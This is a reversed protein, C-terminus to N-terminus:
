LCWLAEFIVTELTMTGSQDLFTLKGKNVLLVAQSSGMVVALLMQSIM